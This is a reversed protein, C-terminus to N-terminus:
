ERYLKAGLVPLVGHKCDISFTPFDVQERINELWKKEIEVIFAHGGRDHYEEEHPFDGAHFLMTSPHCDIRREGYTETYSGRLVLCFLANEHAHKPTKFFPPYFRETLTFGAVNQRHLSEGFLNTKAPKRKM